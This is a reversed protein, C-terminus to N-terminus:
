GGYAVLEISSILFGNSALEQKVMGIIPINSNGWVTTVYLNGLDTKTTTAKDCNFIGAPVEIKEKSIVTSPDIATPIDNFDGPSYDNETTSIVIGNSYIQIKYHLGQLSSKNLWYNVITKAGAGEGLVELETQFLWCDAGKFKGQDIAYGLNYRANIEGNTHYDTRTYNTWAGARYGLFTQGSSSPTPTPSAASTPTTSPHPSNTPSPSTTSSASPSPSASPNNNNAPLTTFYYTGFIAAVVLVIVLV